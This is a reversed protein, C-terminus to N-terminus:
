KLVKFIKSTKDTMLKLLYIGKNYNSFDFTRINKSISLLQGSITYIEITYDNLTTNINLINDVPNPYIFTNDKVNNEINLQNSVGSIEFDDFYFGDRRGFSNTVIKFRILITEGLYDSLSIKEQVWSNQNGTYLPENNANQFSNSGIQTFLGCQPAWSEGNNTSVEFQVYDFNNQIEWKANYTVEAYSYNTLDIENSIELVSNENNSYNSNPSDTISTSPSFYDENTEDWENSNSSWNNSFTNDSDTFIDLYNGFIKTITYEKDFVGNNLILKYSVDDGTNINNNLDILFSGETTQGLELGSYYNTNEASIINESIPSFTVSFDGPETIGLRQLNYDTNFSLNEITYPTNENLIAYNNVLRAANLNLFIM